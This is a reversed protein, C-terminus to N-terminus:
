YRLNIYPWYKKIGDKESMFNNVFNNFYDVANNLNNACEKNKKTLSDITSNLGNNEEQLKAVLNELRIIKEEPSEEKPEEAKFMQAAVDEAIDNLGNVIDDGDYSSHIKKDDYAMECEVHYQGEDNDIFCSVSYSDTMM